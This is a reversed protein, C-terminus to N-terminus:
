NNLLARGTLEPRAKQKEAGSYLVSGTYAFGGCLQYFAIKAPAL